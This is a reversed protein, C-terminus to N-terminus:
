VVLGFILSNKIYRLM